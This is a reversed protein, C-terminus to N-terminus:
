NSSVPEFQRDKLAKFWKLLVVPIDCLLNISFHKTIQRITCIPAISERFILDKTILEFKLYRNLSISNFQNNNCFYNVNKVSTWLELWIKNAYIIIYPVFRNANIVTRLKRSNALGRNKLSLFSPNAIDYSECNYSNAVKKVTRM